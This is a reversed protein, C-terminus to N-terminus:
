AQLLYTALGFLASVCIWAIMSRNFRILFVLSILLWVLAPIDVHIAQLQLHTVDQVGFLVPLALYLTLNLVVGTVAPTVFQMISRVTKNSHTREILPAGAFIFLFCPLFTYFTSLSLGLIGASVTGDFFQFGAMFGVYSLVLVLPGPTTEGLALGDIMQTHTLWHYQEVAIQAVYPLVAYAGGFTVLAAKTFFFIFPQWFFMDATCLYLILLPLCWLFISTLIQICLKVPKFVAQPIITSSNIYYESEDSGHNSDRRDKAKNLLGLLAGLVLAALIVIPFPVQFFFLACFSSLAVVYQFFTHLAKKAIRILAICVIAVVAPRLGYFLAYVWDIKGFIAYIYSLLLLLCAAPLIFLLGATLGGKRGHLLWGTYTALQQAEPGPLLMCYNLAHMFKSDSIWKKKEVLFTHMIAIQGAPGGFSIFGLKLWFLAAEKYTPGSNQQM